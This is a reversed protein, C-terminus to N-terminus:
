YDSAMSNYVTEKLIYLEIDSAYIRLRPAVPPPCPSKGGIIKSKKKKKKKKKKKEKKKKEKKGGEEEKEGKDAWRDTMDM